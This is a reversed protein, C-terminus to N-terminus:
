MSRTHTHAVLFVRASKMKSLVRLREDQWRAMREDKLGICVCVRTPLVFPSTRTSTLWEIYLFLPPSLVPSLVVVPWIPYTDAPLSASCCKMKDHRAAARACKWDEVLWGTVIRAFPETTAMLFFIFSSSPILFFFVTFFFFVRYIEELNPKWSHRSKNAPRHHM